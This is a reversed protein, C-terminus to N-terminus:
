LILKIKKKLIINLVGLSSIDLENENELIKICNKDENEKYDKKNKQKM